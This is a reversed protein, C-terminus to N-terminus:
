KTDAFRSKVKQHHDGVSGSDEEVGVQEVEDGRQGEGSRQVDFPVPELLCASQLGIKVLRIQQYCGKELIKWYFALDM